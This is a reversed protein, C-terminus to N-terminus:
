LLSTKGKVGLEEGERVDEEGEETRETDSSKILCKINSLCIAQCVDILGYMFAAKFHTLFFFL